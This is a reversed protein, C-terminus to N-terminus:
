RQQWFYDRQYATNITMTDDASLRLCIAGYEATSLPRAGQEQYRQVIKVKPFRYRNYYGVPFLVYRPSVANVFAVSSSTNSGHHPAVLVTASLGQPYHELLWRERPKEIDGVFLIAQQHARVRLVCSSNNGEYPEDVPPALMEFGVGDWEWHQGVHCHEANVGPFREPVSSLVRQVSEQKLIAQSGGSHDNDGHSVLLADVRTIGATRLYPVVVDNGADFGGPFKPGTDYILAHHATQIVSSLGQGVDLVTLWVAGTEPRDVRPFFLPLIWVLGLWRNPYGRPMLLLLVAVSSSLLLFPSQLTHHWVADPLNALWKLLWWLPALLYATLQFLFSGMSHNIFLFITSLLCMPVTIMEVWPIAILNAVFMVLSLKQFFYLTLPFLGLCVVWQVHLWKTVGHNKVRLRGGMGYWMLAVATFSLWLSVSFLAFPQCVIIIFFALLLRRLMSASRNLLVGSMLVTIMIVARQTPLSFGALLGYTWAGVIAGCAGAKPAPIRLMVAPVCRWVASILFYIVGAVFGIHLGSVAVLHSTGTNQFVEWQTQVMLSRSGVTLASLFATLERNSSSQEIANQIWQRARDILMKGHAHQILKAPKSPVVYGTARIGNIFLARQYDFGGPNHLGHPPKLKVTFRWEDGVNVAPPHQNSNRVFHSVGSQYWHLNVLASQKKGEVENLQFYFGIGMANITPISVVRGIVSLPKSIETEPLHWRMVEHARYNAVSYGAFFLLLVLAFPHKKSLFYLCLTPIIFYCCVSYPPLQRSYFLCLLGLCFGVLALIFQLEQNIM